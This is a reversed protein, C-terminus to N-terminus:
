ENNYEISPHLVRSSSAYDLHLSTPAHHQLVGDTCNHRVAMVMEVTSWQSRTSGLSTMYKNYHCYRSTNHHRASSHDWEWFRQNLGLQSQFKISFGYCFLALIFVKRCRHRGKLKPDVTQAQVPTADIILRHALSQFGEVSEPNAIYTYTHCALNSQRTLNVLIRSTIKSNLKKVYVNSTPSEVQDNWESTLFLYQVTEVTLLKQVIAMSSLGKASNRGVINVRTFRTDDVCERSEM